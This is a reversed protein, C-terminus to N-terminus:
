AAVREEEVSAPALASFDVRPIASCRCSIAMGPNVNEGDVLPPSDWRQISGEMARHSPRERRDLVGSWSYKEIGISIQRVENFRSNLKGVQDRAIIRARRETIQGIRKVETALSEWRQGTSWSKEVAGKVKDLYESPISKILEVNATAAERMAAGIEETPALYSSIDVGVSRVLNAALKEDVDALVRRAALRAMSEAQHEIGGFRRAAQEILTSLGPAPLPGGPPPPPPPADRGHLSDSTALSWHARMGAAVDDGARRCQAVVQNLAFRYRLETAKSPLVPRIRRARAAKARISKPYLSLLTYLLGRAM